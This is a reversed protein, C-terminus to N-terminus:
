LRRFPSFLLHSDMGDGDLVELTDAWPDFDVHLGYGKEEARVACALAGDEMSDMVSM